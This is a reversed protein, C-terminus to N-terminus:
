FTLNNFKLFIVRFAFNYFIEYVAMFPFVIIYFIYNGM